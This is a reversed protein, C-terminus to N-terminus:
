GFVVDFQVLLSGSFKRGEWSFFFFEMLVNMWEESFGTEGLIGGGSGGFCEDGLQFKGELLRSFIM